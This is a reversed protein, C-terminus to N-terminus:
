IQIEKRNNEDIRMTCFLIKSSQLFAIPPLYILDLWYEVVKM